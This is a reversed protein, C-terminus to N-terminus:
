LFNTFRKNRKNNDFSWEIEIETVVNLPTTHNFSLKRNLHWQDSLPEYYTIIFFKSKAPLELKGNRLFASKQKPKDFTQKLTNDSM